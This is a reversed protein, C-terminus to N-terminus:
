DGELIIRRQDVQAQTLAWSDQRSRFRLMDHPITIRLDDSFRVFGSRQEGSLM